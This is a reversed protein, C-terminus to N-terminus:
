MSVQTDTITHPPESRPADPSTTVSRQEKNNHIGDIRSVVSLGIDVLDNLVGIQFENENTALSTDTIGVESSPRSRITEKGVPM